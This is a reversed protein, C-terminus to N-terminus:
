KVSALASRSTKLRGTCLRFQCNWKSSRFSCHGLFAFAPRCDFANQRTKGQPTCQEKKNKLICNNTKGYCSYHWEGMLDHRRSLM